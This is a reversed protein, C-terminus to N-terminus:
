LNAYKEAIKNELKGVMENIQEDTLKSKSLIRDALSFEINLLLKDVIERISEELIESAEEPVDLKIVIEKM